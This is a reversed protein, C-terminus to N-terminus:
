FSFAEMFDDASPRFAMADNALRRRFKKNRSLAMIMALTLAM